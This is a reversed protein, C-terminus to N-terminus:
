EAEAELERERLVLNVRAIDKRIATVDEGRELVGVAKKRRLDFLQEKLSYLKEKLESTTLERVENIRM